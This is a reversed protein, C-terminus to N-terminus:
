MKPPPFTPPNGAGEPPGAVAARVLALEDVGAAAVPLVPCLTPPAAAAEDIPALAAPEAM